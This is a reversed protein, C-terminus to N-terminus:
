VVPKNDYKQVVVFIAKKWEIKNMESKVYQLMDPVNKCLNHDLLYEELIMQNCKLVYCEKGYMPYVCYESILVSGLKGLGYEASYDYFNVYSDGILPIVPLETNEEILNVLYERDNM